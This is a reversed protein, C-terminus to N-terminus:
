LLWQLQLALHVEQAGSEVHLQPVAQCVWCVQSCREHLHAKCKNSILSAYSPPLPHAVRLMPSPSQRACEVYRPADSMCTPRAACIQPNKMIISWSLLGSVPLHTLFCGPSQRACPADHRPEHDTCAPEVRQTPKPQELIRTNACLTRQHGTRCVWMAAKTCILKFSQGALKGAVYYLAM